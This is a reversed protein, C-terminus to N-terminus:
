LALSIPAIKASTRKTRNSDRQEGAETDPLIKLYVLSVKSGRVVRTAGSRTRPRQGKVFTHDVLLTSRELNQTEPTDGTFTRGNVAGLLDGYVPSGVASKPISLRIMGDANFSSGALPAIPTETPVGIVLGVVQTALTGYEFSVAGNEDTRM